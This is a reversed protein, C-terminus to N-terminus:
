YGSEAKGSRLEQRVLRCRINAERATCMALSYQGRMRQRTEQSESRTDAGIDKKEPTKGITMDSFLTRLSDLAPPIDGSDETGDSNTPSDGTGTLCTLQPIRLISLLGPIGERADGPPMANLNDM